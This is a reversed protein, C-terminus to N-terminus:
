KKKLVLFDDKEFVIEYNNNNKLKAVMKKQADLSPKAFVDNLLFVVYDSKDIGVPITYLTQRHALHAGLNNTAAVSATQSIKDLEKKIINKKAQPKIFMDVSPKKAFPLPGYMYATNIAMWIIYIAFFPTANYRLLKRINAVSYIASIFLFPTIVATYQYYIQRFLNNASLLNILLDPIVFILQLPSFLSIYGLPSFLRQLYTIKEKEVLMDVTQAPHVLINKVVDSPSSGFDQYYEIAFHQSGRVEPIAYWILMYLMAIGAVTLVIGEKLKKQFMTFYVGFLAVLLWLQEKTIAALFLSIYFLRSKSSILYNWAALLFTTSLTVAHFDYLNIFNISPNIIYAFSFVLALNKNTLVKEAIAFVFYAGLALVITQLALLMKPDNWLLYFPALLVLIFDAHSSLRSVINGKDDNLSFFDGYVTNWVTQDMNGLDYRGTYFNDHRLFSATTFYGIYLAILIVLIVEHFHTRIYHLFTQM